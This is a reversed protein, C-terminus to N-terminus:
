LGQGPASPANQNRAAFDRLPSTGNVLYDGVVRERYVRPNHSALTRANRWHRDLLTRGSVGSSGLADFLRTAAELVLDIAVIQAQTVEIDAAITLAKEAEGDGLLHAEHIADFAEGAKVVVTEAGYALASIRGVVQLLQIDHRAEEANGHAYTRKRETILRAVDRKIARGIGALATLLAQQYFLNQYGFRDEYRYVFEAPIFVNAYDASGSSTGRQGFGDWDDTLTVGEADRRVLVVVATGDPDQALVDLWDSFLSGTAYFKAGNLRWGDGDPTIKTQINAFSGNNAETWGGGIFAGDVFRRLWADRHDGAPVNLQDEVFALHNRLVQPVNSDAEGLEVLLKWVQALSAGSGGFERPVRLATFGAEVLWRVPEYPLERHRERELAGEAIRDFVPRFRAALTEYDVAGDATPNTLTETM